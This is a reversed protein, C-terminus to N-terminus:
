KGLKLSELKEILKDINLGSYMCKKGTVDYLDKLLQARTPRKKPKEKEVQKIEIVPEDELEEEKEEIIVKKNQQQVKTEKQEKEEEKYIEFQTNLRNIVRSVDCSQLKGDVKISNCPNIGDDGYAMQYINNTADRVTGDYKIQIDETIKIMRRQIYGSKATGMATDTINCRGAAAHFFFEQPTLGEIFSHRVFGRSEYEMDSPLKGFPYHFLTRKGNSLTQEVREGVINQQGVLGTLQAINFFDGKSGSMVTSLLNNTKIMDDKAIKMGVDKAKNLAGTVRVEKIGPNQTRIAIEDAELYCTSIKDQILQVNKKNNILCDQLGISFGNVLLWNNAMFHVNDIFEAAYDEGYEKNIYQIINNQSGGIINKDFAGEYLVGRKIRVVPEDPHADNKKEYNFDEPLIFSVLGRGNYVEEPKGNERLVKKIVAEREPSWLMKGDKEGNVLINFFEERSLSENHRTMMYMGALSDQVIQIIPKSGQSSVINYRTSALYELEARAEYSQPIHINMEDGDFDANFTKTSGLNFRFTKGKMVKIRKALMSGRHLTPQRNLLVIDGDKLHRHVEDGINLDIRKKFPALTEKESLLVGNRELRDGPQLTVNDNTVTIRNGTLGRIVVDGYLLETGKRFMAYKLNIRTSDPKVLFNAKDNNVLDSLYDKNFSTVKEPVTLEEAIERPIGMEGLKLKPDPGIVTRGSFEVRKGMLNNRIQGEKGAMREKLGKISRGNTPHKAKGQSNNYFTLIRFKLSQIDKLRKSENDNSIEGEEKKLNNNFKIIEILQNTLDDDCINGDAIAYPRACPPIVPFVSLIYNRPHIRAPDFGCLIVDEDSIADFIKHIEAVSLEVSIKKNKTTETDLGNLVDDDLANKDKYVMSIVNDTISYAIAPQPNNCHCCMDIKEVKEVIKDYRRDKVIKSLGNVEIQEETILLRNCHFCFCRLFSVVQKYFLPHIIPENLEIHGFHGPCIKANKGCTVCLANSDMSAGMREDYVSGSGSLKTNEIKCVSMDLLEKNSFIGFKIKEIENSKCLVNGEVDSTTGQNMKSM